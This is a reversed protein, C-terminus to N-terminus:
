NNLFNEAETLDSLTNINFEKEAVSIALGRYDSAILYNFSDCLDYLKDPETEYIERIIKQTKGNFITFGTGKVNNTVVQPKEICKILLSNSDTEVSFNNRIKEPNEELTIGCYFDFDDTELADKISKTNLDVFIEDSLQLIVTEDSNIAKLAQVFANMLGNQEQQFVYHIAIDKYENGMASKISDGEKGIVVYAESVGLQTLNDLAYEILSKNNLKILPKCCVENKSDKLRKGDGAALIVGVM